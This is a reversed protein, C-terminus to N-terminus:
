NITRQSSRLVMPSYPQNNNNNNNNRNSAILTNIRQSIIPSVPNITINNSTNTLDSHTSSLTSNHNNPRNTPTNLSQGAPQNSVPRRHVHLKLINPFTDFQKNILPNHKQILLAEKILLKYKTDAHAIIKTNEILQEKTPQINHQTIFHQKISGKYSHNIMRNNLATETYGIYEEPKCDQAPCVFKYCVHSKESDPTPPMSNNKMVLNSTKKNRYYIILKLKTNDNTCTVKNRIISKLTREDIKYNSHFQNQYFLTINQHPPANNPQMKNNIFTNILKDVIKNTYNNNILIQKIQKVETHFQQWTQSVKYARNLYNNIVSHKYQDTCQSDNNLCSGIDTPKRYTKTKFSDSSADVSVDLFPLIKDVNMEYTFKLVSNSEFVNKLQIIEQENNVQLFIDDVYRCYIHPKTIKKNIVTQELHGMYFNAFLPGLASGMAVGDRQIFLSGNMQQLVQSKLEDAININELENKCEELESNM